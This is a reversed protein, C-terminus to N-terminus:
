LYISHAAMKTMGPLTEISVDECAAYAPVRAARVVGFGAVDITNDFRVSM